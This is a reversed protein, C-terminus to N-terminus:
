AGEEKSSAATAAADPVPLGCHTCFRHIPLNQRGCHACVPLPAATRPDAALKEHIEQEVTRQWAEASTAAAVAELSDIRGLLDIAKARYRALLAAYDDDSIKGTRYDFEVERIALYVSEKERRLADAPSEPREEASPRAPRYLPILVFVLAIAGLIAALVLAAM